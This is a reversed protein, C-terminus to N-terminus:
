SIPNAHRAAKQLAAAQLLDAKQEIIQHDNYVTAHFMFVSIHVYYTLFETLRVIQIPRSEHRVAHSILPHRAIANQWAVRITLNDQGAHGTM